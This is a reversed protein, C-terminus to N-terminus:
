LIQGNKLEITLQSRDTHIKRAVSQVLDADLEQMLCCETFIRRLRHTEYEESGIVEYKAAAIQFILSKATDEDIPQKDMEEDLTTVTDTEGGARNSANVPSSIQEPNGILHNLVELVRQEVQASAAQGGLRRLVKQAPTKQIPSKKQKKECKERAKQFSDDDMIVPYGGAGLYREDALIRAAMNKNWLKGAEYPVDQENLMQALAGLSAGSNYQAFVMQVIETEKPHAVIQGQEMKYGFPQKRNAM